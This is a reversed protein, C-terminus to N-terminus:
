VFSSEEDLSPIAAVFLDFKSAAIVLISRKFRSPRSIATLSPCWNPRKRGETIVMSPAAGLWLGAATAAQGLHPATTNTSGAGPGAPSAIVPSPTSRGHTAM